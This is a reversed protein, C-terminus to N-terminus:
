NGGARSKEEEAGSTRRRSPAEQSKGFKYTFSLTAVQSDRVQYFNEAYGTLSTAGRTKNTFFIDSVNLKVTAKKDWLQKQVGASLFWIPEIEMFGYVERSRVVGVIEASWDNKLKLTNNSNLTYSPRGNKLNTQALNGQYLAYYLTGNNVSSFWSGITFPASLTINFYDLQALNEMKQAVLKEAVTDPALVQIIVDTTRSYGLKTTFRQDYTHSLEFSYSLEPKLFPNGASYTSPDLFNKFPNLQHYSPRNIRRSLSLGVENKKSATYGVFASPFLQTYDRDFQQGDTLQQGEARTNELRLGLQLSVKSWKKSTNVYAAQINEKYLFHNSKDTDLTNGGNSRDYFQLDNDATVLSTKLGAELTGGVANWPQTYDIKASKITLDGDLGGHLLYAPQTNENLQNYYNTTFDQFDQNNYVIYDVDASIERGASDITHKINFNLGQNNRDHGAIANTLFYAEPREPMDYINSRNLNNRNIDLLFGNAVVGMVTKPSLYYDAGVRLTHSNVIFNFTNQQDYTGNYAGTNDYFRRYIDLQTYDSRYVYNYNGFVNFKKTRHNLQLGQNSKAYQGQGFSSTLTGNTGLNSDRKLKIDIIGANGAADYKASPNTILEIKEVANASMGRLLNALETGSMQVPKGDIMVIVGQRGRMSINENQDISVGPAKELVELATSGAAVISNEVNMVTKDLHQEILPKQGEVVVEKLNTAAQKLVLTPLQVQENGTTLMIDASEAKTLGVMMAVVYYSSASLNDFAFAGSADTLAGKVLTSDAVRLLAVNAFEVPQGAENKVFGAIGAQQAQAQCFLLLLLPLLLNKM